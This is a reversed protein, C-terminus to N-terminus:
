LAMMLKQMISSIERALICSFEETFSEHNPMTSELRSVLVKDILNLKTDSGSQKFGDFTFKPLIKHIIFNNIAQERDENLETFLALYHLGQRITRMGFEVGLPNFFEKNLLSKCFVEARTLKQRSAVACFSHLPHRWRLCSQPRLDVVVGASHISGQALTQRLEMM